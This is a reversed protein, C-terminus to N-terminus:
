MFTRATNYQLNFLHPGELYSVAELCQKWM